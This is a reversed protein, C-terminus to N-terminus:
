DLITYYYMVDFHIVFRTMAPVFARLHESRKQEVHLDRFPVIIAIKHGTRATTSTSAGTSSSGDSEAVKRRKTSPEEEERSSAAGAASAAQGDIKGASTRQDTSDSGRGGGPAATASGEPETWSSEGTSANFWYYAQHTHSFVKSWESAAAPTAATESAATASSSM